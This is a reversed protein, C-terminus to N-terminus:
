SFQRRSRRGRVLRRHGVVPATVASAASACSRLCSTLHSTELIAGDHARGDVELLTLMIAPLTLLFSLVNVVASYHVLRLVHELPALVLSNESLIAEVIVLSARAPHKSSSRVHVRTNVNLLTSLM